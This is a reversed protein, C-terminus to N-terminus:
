PLSHGDFDQLFLLHIGFIELKVFSFNLDQLYTLMGMDDSEKIDKLVRLVDVNHHFVQVSARQEMIVLGFVIFKFFAFDLLDAMLDGGCHEIELIESDGM